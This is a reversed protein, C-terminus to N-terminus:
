FFYIFLGGDFLIRRHFTSREPGEWRLLEGKITFTIYIYIMWSQIAEQEPSERPSGGRSVRVGWEEVEKHHGEGHGRHM